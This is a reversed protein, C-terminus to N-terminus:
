ATKQNAKVQNYLYRAVDRSASPKVQPDGFQKLAAYWSKESAQAGVLKELDECLKGFVANEAEVDGTLLAFIAELAADAVAEPKGSAVPREFDELDQTFADSCNTVILVAAILARKQAMKQITNVVDAVDENAVRGIQQGTIRQDDISFKARCGGKKEYCLWQKPDSPKWQKGEIIAAAGCEPCTRKGSRYRYKSEWSNCSGIAEGMFRDGRWLQCKYEYYFLAEGGHDAGTWDEIVTEAVYRPVLGFISCLKEAGPKLLVKKEGGGPIKGYDESEHMVAAIFKNVQSKREIAQDVTFVPMFDDARVIASQPVHIVETSM